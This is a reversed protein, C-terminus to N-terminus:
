RLPRFTMAGVQDGNQFILRLRTRTLEYRQVTGLKSLFSQELQMQPSACGKKTSAIANIRLQNGPEQYSANYQNCGAFGGVSNATFNLTIPPRTRVPTTSNTTISDLQWATNKLKSQVPTFVLVDKGNASTVTLRNQSLRVSLPSSGLFKAFENERSQVETPCGIMTSIINETLRFQSNQLQYSASYSNCGTSGGLRRGDFRITIPNKPLLAINTGNSRWSSLQWNIGEFPMAQGIPNVPQTTLPVPRSQVALGCFVTFAISGALVPAINKIKNLM